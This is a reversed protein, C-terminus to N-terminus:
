RCSHLPVSAGTYLPVADCCRMHVPLLFNTTRLSCTYMCKCKTSTPTTKHYESTRRSRVAHRTLRSCFTFIWVQLSVGYSIVKELCSSVYGAFDVNCTDWFAGTPWKPKTMSSPPSSRKINSTNIGTMLIGNFHLYAVSAISFEFVFPQFAIMTTSKRQYTGYVQGGLRDTITTVLWQALRFKESAGILANNHPWRLGGM